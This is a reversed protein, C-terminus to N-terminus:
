HLYKIHKTTREPAKSQSAQDQNYAENYLSLDMKFVHIVWAAVIEIYSHNVRKQIIITHRWKRRKHNLNASHADLDVSSFFIRNRM